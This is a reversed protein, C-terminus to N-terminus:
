AHNDMKKHEGPGLYKILAQTFFSFPELDVIHTQIFRTGPILQPFKIEVKAM